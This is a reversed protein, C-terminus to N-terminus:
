PDLVCSTPHMQDSTQCPHVYLLHIRYGRRWPFRGWRRWGLFSRVFYGGGEKVRFMSHGKRDDNKKIKRPAQSKTSSAFIGMDPIICSRAKEMGPTSSAIFKASTMFCTFEISYLTIM